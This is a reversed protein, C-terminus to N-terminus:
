IEWFDVKPYLWVYVLRYATHCYEYSHRLCNLIAPLDLWGFGDEKARAGELLRQLGKELRGEMERLAEVADIGPFGAGFGLSLM